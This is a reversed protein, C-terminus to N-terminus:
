RLQDLRAQIHRELGSRSAKGHKEQGGTKTLFTMIIDLGSAMSLVVSFYFKVYKKDFTKKM